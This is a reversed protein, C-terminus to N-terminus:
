WLWNALAILMVCYGFMIIILVGMSLMFVIDDKVM